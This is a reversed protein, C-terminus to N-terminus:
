KLILNRMDPMRAIIRYVIIPLKPLVTVIQQLLHRQFCELHGALRIKISCKDKKFYPILLQKRRIDPFNLAPKVEDYSSDVLELQPISKLLNFGKETLVTVLTEGYDNNYKISWPDMLALDAYAYLGFPDGCINCGPVTWLRRGFPIQAARRWEIRNNDLQVFGPWGDGRYRVNIKLRDKKRAGLIKALFLTSDFTKQQKCFICITILNEIKGNLIKRLAKLQCPTGVIMLRENENIHRHFKSCALVSHYISNPIDDYSLYQHNYFFGEAFPFVGTKHLSYVNDVLNQKLSEVILTKCVGGSSASKRINKDKNYGLYFRKQSITTFYNEFTEKSNSPCVNVCKKCKVCKSNNIEIRSLGNELIKCTVAGTPCTAVCAGCQQCYNYDFVITNDIIKLM